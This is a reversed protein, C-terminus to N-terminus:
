TLRGKTSWFQQWADRVNRENGYLAADMASRKVPVPLYSALTSRKDYYDLLWDVAADPVYPM